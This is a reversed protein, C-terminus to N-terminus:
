FTYGYSRMIARAPETKLYQMLAIAAPNDRGIVLLVADQRLPQYLRQPVVWASGNEIRGDKTVQSAAVFGLEANGSAVFQYTQAINEGQVIKPALTQQLGLAALVETAAKGYPALKPNAIALKKFNGVRLVAADADVRGSEALWLVLAGTAYTFRSGPATLGDRELRTPIEEDASLLMQFPAGNRIQAYFNGSSGFSLKARHGSDKEFQAAIKQMPATFNSAVAVTTEAALSASGIAIGLLLSVTSKSTANM